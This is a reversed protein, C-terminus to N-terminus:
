KKKALDRRKREILVQLEDLLKADHTSIAEVLYSLPQSPASSFEMLNRVGNLAVAQRLEEPTHRAAYRFAKGEASRNLLGKKYMRDATTMMTTYAQSSKGDALLDHITAKGLKWIKQMVRRELPGLERGAIVGLMAFANDREISNV